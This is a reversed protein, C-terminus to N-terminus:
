GRASTPCLLEQYSELMRQMGFHDAVHQRAAEGMRARLGTDHSLEVLAAAFADADGRPVLRGNVGDLVQESAGGVDTCIVPLGSALAELSANPCGAPESIMVFLDVSTHFPAMERVEGLWRVPLGATQSKLNEAYAESGFEADGALHLECPPLSPLAIHFAELLDELRKQPSLRAATGIILPTGAERTREPLPPLVVGNAIAQVETGLSERAQQAEGQYKVVVGALRAGYERANRYPLAHRPNEFYRDLSAHYMEGPSVDFIPVSWLADALLVKYVPIANWFCVSRPPHANMDDLIQSVAAAADVKGAPPPVIVPIGAELLETRGPTPLEPYEQLLAVRVPVGQQHFAKALRKLSSQAGGMSLNNTVFWVTEGKSEPVAARHLLWATRRAMEVASFDREMAARGSAGGQAAKLIAQAFDLPRAELPLLTVAPNRWAIESTGGADTSVLPLGAALAELHALSLGEYASCSIMVDGEGLVEEVTRFGQTFHILHSVGLREAEADLERMCELASPSRPSAEGALILRVTRSSGSRMLEAQTAKLIGPLLHLRKQPRPNAVCVLTLPDGKGSRTGSRPTFRETAIGNWVTRAPIQPLTKRLEGEVMHACAILLACDGPALGELGDPWAQQANHVTVAVPLIRSYLRTDEADILHGHLADAGFGLATEEMAVARKERSLGSLDALAAPRPLEHRLPSGLVVLRSAVGFRPLLRHLEWAIREAGGHQLSTVVELARLNPDFGADLGPWHILRRPTHQWRKPLWARSRPLEPLRMGPLAQLRLMLLGAEIAERGYWECVCPPLNQARSFDGGHTHFFAQWVEKHIGGDAHGFAVVPKRTASAPPPKFNTPHTLWAGCRLLLMGGDCGRALVSSEIDNNATDFFQIDTFGAARLSRMSRAALWPRRADADFILARM